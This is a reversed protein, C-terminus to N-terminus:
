WKGDAALFDKLMQKARPGGYNGRSMPELDKFVVVALYEDGKAVDPGLHAIFWGLHITKEEDFFNSGTKGSLRRGQPSTELFTIERTLKLAAETAPLDDTWLKKLFDIQEYASIKLAVEKSPSILWAIDRGGRLDQNGYNFYELYKELKRKGLRPTIRQSFWVVSDSMWTKANHDKNLVERDGIKKDWKLIQNEDKLVGSDFAMVALPVKFTSSASFREKCFDGGVEKEFSQKTLNYLLFCGEANQFPSQSIAPPAQDEARESPGTPGSRHACGASFSSALIAILFYTKRM